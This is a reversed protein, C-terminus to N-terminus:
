QHFRHKLFLLGGAPLSGKFCEASLQRQQARITVGRLQHVHVQTTAPCSILALREILPTPHLAAQVIEQPAAIGVFFSQYSIPDPCFRRRTTREFTDIM